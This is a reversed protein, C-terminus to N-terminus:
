GYRFRLEISSLYPMVSPDKSGPLVGARRIAQRVPECGDNVHENFDASLLQGSPSLALVASCNVEGVNTPLFLKIHSILQHRYVILPDVSVDVAGSKRKTPATQRPPTAKENVPASADPDVWNEFAVPHESVAQLRKAGGNDPPPGFSGEALESYADKQLALSEQSLRILEQLALTEQEIAQIHDELAQEYVATASPAVTMAAQLQVASVSVVTIPAMSDPKNEIAAASVNAPLSLQCLGAFLAGHLCLSFLLSQDKLM